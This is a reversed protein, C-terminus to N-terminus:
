KCGSGYDFAEINWMESYATSDIIFGCMDPRTVALKVYTFLPISPLERAFAEQAELHAETYGSQGPLLSLATKCAQDFEPNSFGSINVGSWGLPYLLNGNIDTLIPDGPINETLWSDCPPLEGTRFSFQLIDFSRSYLPGSPGESFFAEPTWQQVNAVIGCQALSEALIQTVKTRVESTTTWYYFALETGPRIREDGGQYLRPTTSNNDDDIWGIEDLLASGAEVDFGYTPLHSNFLPHVAPLYGIPVHSQGFFVDDVVRQRDLCLAIAQRLRLDQFAGKASFGQWTESPQLSFYIYEWVPAPVFYAKIEQEAQSSIITSSEKLFYSADQDLVDCEGSLLLSLNVDPDDGIFRFILQDFKPLGQYARFYNPNRSMLIYAGDKWEEIVYPGWSLPKEASEEELLESATYQGWVHEPFPTWFNLFYTQDLFGPLSVWRTTLEDIAEYSATRMILYKDTPTDPDADLRYSYESDHATLPEGDAWILNELLTFTVVMQDMEVEGGAYSIACDPSQCGAPHIVDGMSLLNLEGNDDVILDGEQVLVPQIQADGDLLNPLKKLIVPRYGFSNRDIPGDYVAELVSQMALMQGGYPYLTEPQSGLCIVLTRAELTPTAEPTKTEFRRTPVQVPTPTFSIVTNNQPSVAPMGFFSCGGLMFLIMAYILLTGIKM